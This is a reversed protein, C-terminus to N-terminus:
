HCNNLGEEQYLNEITLANIDQYISRRSIGQRRIALLEHHTELLKCDLNRGSPSRQHRATKQLGALSAGAQM